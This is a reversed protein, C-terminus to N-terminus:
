YIPEAMDQDIEVAVARQLVSVSAILRDRNKVRVLTGEAGALAGACIRVRQGTRVFDWPQIQRGSRLVAQLSALEAPDVPEPEGARSVIFVVGPTQLIPLRQRPDFRCFVYSTFLPQDIEVNRNARRRKLKYSPSFSEYGKGRLSEQVANEHRSRTYVAFWAPEIGSVFSASAAELSTGGGTSHYM